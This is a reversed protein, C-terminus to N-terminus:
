QYTKGIATIFICGFGIIRFLCFGYNNWFLSWGLVILYSGIIIQICGFVIIQFFHTEMTIYFSNNFCSNFYIISFYISFYICKLYYGFEIM